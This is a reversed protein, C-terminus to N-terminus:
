QGSVRRSRVEGDRRRGYRRWSKDSLMRKLTHTKSFTVRLVPEDMRRLLAASAKHGPKVLNARNKFETVQVTLTGLGTIQVQGSNVLAERIASIFAGTVRAVRQESAKLHLAVRADLERKNVQSRVM